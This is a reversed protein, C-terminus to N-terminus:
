TTGGILQSLRFVDRVWKRLHLYTRTFVSAVTIVEGESLKNHVEVSVARLSLSSSTKLNKLIRSFTSFFHIDTRCPAWNWCGSVAATLHVKFHCRYCWRCPAEQNCQNQKYIDHSHVACARERPSEAGLRRFASWLIRSSAAMVLTSALQPRRSYITSSTFIVSNARLFFKVVIQRGAVQRVYLLGHVLRESARRFYEAAFFQSIEKPSFSARNTV